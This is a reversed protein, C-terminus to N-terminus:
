ITQVAYGPTLLWNMREDHLDTPVETLIQEEFCVGVRLADLQGLARDYFGGGYGLREGQLTFALGPVFVLEPTERRASPPPERVGFAGRELEDLRGVQHWVLDRGEVRPFLVARGENLLAQALGMTDIESQTSSFLALRDVDGFDPIEQVRRRLIGGMVQPDQGLALTARRRRMEARLADKEGM